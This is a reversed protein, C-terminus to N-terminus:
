ENKGEEQSVEREYHNNDFYDFLQILMAKSITRYDLTHHLTKTFDTENKLFDIKIEQNKFKDNHLDIIADAIFLAFRANFDITGTKEDTLNKGICYIPKIKVIYYILISVLRITGPEYGDNITVKNLSKYVLACTIRFKNANIRMITKSFAKSTIDNDFLIEKGKNKYDIIMKNTFKMYYEELLCYFSESYPADISQINTPM